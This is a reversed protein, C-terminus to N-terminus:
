LSQRIKAVKSAYHNTYIGGARVNLDTHLTNIHYGNKDSIVVITEIFLVL